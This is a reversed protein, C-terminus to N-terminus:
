SMASPAIARSASAPPIAAAKGRSAATYASIRIVERGLTSAKSCTIAPWPPMAELLPLPWITMSHLMAPLYSRFPNAIAIRGPWAQSPLPTSYHGGVRRREKARFTLLAPLAAVRLLGRRNLQRAPAVQDFGGSAGEGRRRPVPAARQPTSFGGNSAAVLARQQCRLRRGPFCARM